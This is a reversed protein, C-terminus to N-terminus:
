VFPLLYRDVTSNVKRPNLKKKELFIMKDTTRKSKDTMIMLKDTLGVNIRSAVVDLKKAFVNWM